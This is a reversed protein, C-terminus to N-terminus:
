EESPSSYQLDLVFHDYQQFNNQDIITRLQDVYETGRESYSSLHPLLKNIDGTEYSAIRFNRYARARAITEFYDVISGSIDEYKRLHVNGTNSKAAIRPRDPNYSWIGFLNNAESFFRSTGWGSEVVAQALAISTPHTHMRIILDFPSDANFRDLQAQYFLSDKKSWNDTLVLDKVKRLDQRVRHKVILIAPLVVAIFKEKNEQVTLTDFGGVNHYLFPKVLSDTIPVIDELSSIELLVPEFVKDEEEEKCGSIFTAFFASVLILGLTPRPLGTM